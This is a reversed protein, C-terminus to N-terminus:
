EKVELEEVYVRGNISGYSYYGSYRVADEEHIVSKFDFEIEDPADNLCFDGFMNDPFKNIAELAREKTAFLDVLVNSYDCGDVFDNTWGENFIAYVKAM